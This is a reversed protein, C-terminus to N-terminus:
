PEEAGAPGSVAFSAKVVKGHPDPFIWGGIALRACEAWHSDVPPSGAFGVAQVAGRNGVYVTATVEAAAGCGALSAVGEKVVSAVQAESWAELPPQDSTFDLPLKFEATGDGGTPKAFTMKGAEDILCREVMWDGLDGEAIGARTVQGDKGVEVELLVKGGLYKKQKLADKYCAELAVAHPSIGAQIQENQLVGRTGSVQLGDKEGKEASADGAAPASAPEQAAAPKDSGGCGALALLAVLPASKCVISSM